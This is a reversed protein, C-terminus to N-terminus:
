RQLKIIAEMLLVDSIETVLKVSGMATPLVMRIQGNQSKKDKKMNKLIHESCIGGPISIPLYYSTLLKLTQEKVNGDILGLDYALEVAYSIGISVAEGHLIKYNTVTELAHALTHGYNLYTRISSEEPDTAVIEIKIGIGCFLAETLIGNDLALLQEANQSLWGALNSDAILAHKILEAFGSKIQEAPLTKLFEVDYIVAIPQHFAGLMNKGLQHNIAVKGGVSSDHALITTPMQIFRLGRMYSAAFFGAFDGVVGGGLAIVVTSRDLQRELAYRTLNDLESLSKSEEGAPIIYSITNYQDLLHLTDELYIKSVNSDTVLLLPTEKSIALESLFQSLKSRIKHGIYINYHHEISVVKMALTKM